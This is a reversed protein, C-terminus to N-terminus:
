MKGPVICPQTGTHHLCTLIGVKLLHMSLCAPSPDSQPGLRNPVSFSLWLSPAPLATLSIFRSTLLPRSPRAAGWPLPGGSGLCVSGRSSLCLLHPLFAWLRQIWM